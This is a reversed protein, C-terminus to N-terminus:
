PAPPGAHGEPQPRAAPVGADTDSAGAGGSTRDFTIVGIEVNFRDEGATFHEVHIRELAIPYPAAELSTILKVAARLGSNPLSARVHRRRFRGQQVEPQNTVSQISVGFEGCQAEVFSGLAPARVDYRREAAAAEAERQALEPGARDIDRLVTVIAENDEELASIASSLLYVPLLVVLLAAIVGLTGVLRKERENFGAWVQELRDRM